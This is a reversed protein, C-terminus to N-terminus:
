NWFDTTLENEMIETLIGILDTSDRFNSLEREIVSEPSGGYRRTLVSFVFWRRIISKLEIYSLNFKCRGLLYLAYTQYLANKGRIMNDNVFGSSKIISIFDHWNTLDLVVKLGDKLIEFNKIREDDTTKKEDLNRGSLLLYAYKLRGRLFSYSIITRLLNENTPQANIVNYSVNDTNSPTKADKSFNELKNKGEPWYLSMLTFIFDSKNLTTGKSNIREFIKSVEELDLEESLEISSFNYGTLSTLSTINRRVRRKEDDALDPIKEKLGDFYEEIFDYPDGRFVDTINSVWIPDKLISSNQVEFIEEFPNFAIKIKKQKRESGFM